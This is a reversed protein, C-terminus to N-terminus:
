FIGEHKLVDPIAITGDEQQYTEMLAVCLRSLALSSANLTHVLPLKNIKQAGAPRYRIHGRRAQFDGCNSVSSVERYENQGPMWVEIDYTKTAAFSSDQAALLSVRYHLNLAQLISEACALMREQEQASQDPQVLSVIEVKEFEHMRILGRESAGYAGAERRFCSTWATHRIPLQEQAIIQDRYMNTLNVESTPTLYLGDARIAYVQDKFKPLNGTVILSEENVVYPPFIPSFGHRINNKLMFMSLAYMLQVAQGKYVAFQSGAIRAGAEFDLWGLQTGLELHNKVTFNFSPKKGVTKIVVNSEKGGEPVDDSPINPCSLLLELLAKEEQEFATEKQKLEKSLTISQQRIDDSVPGHVSKALENKKHRLTEVDVQLSRVRADLEQLQKIDFSPDKKQILRAIHAFNEKLLNRDIMTLRDLLM